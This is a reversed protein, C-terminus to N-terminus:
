SIAIIPLTGRYIHNDGIHRVETVIGMVDVKRIFKNKFHFYNSENKHQELNWIDRIFLKVPVEVKELEM